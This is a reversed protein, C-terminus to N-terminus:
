IVSHQLRYISLFHDDDVIRLFFSYGDIGSCPEGVEKNEDIICAARVAGVFTGIM